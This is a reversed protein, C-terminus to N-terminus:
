QLVYDDSLRDLGDIWVVALGDADLVAADLEDDGAKVSEVHAVYHDAPPASNRIASLYIAAVAGLCCTGALAARWLPWLPARERVSRSPQRQPAVEDLIKQNFFEGNRLVPPRSHRRLAQGIRATALKEAAAEPHEREFAAEGRADLRGDLYATWKDEIPDPPNSNNM